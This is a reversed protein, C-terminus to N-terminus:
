HVLKSPAMTYPLEQFGTSSSSNLTKKPTAIKIPTYLYLLSLMACSHFVGSPRGMKLRVHISFPILM